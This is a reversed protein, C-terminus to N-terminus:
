GREDLNTTLLQTLLIPSLRPGIRCRRRTQHGPIRRAPMVRARQGAACAQPCNAGRRVTQVARGSDIM